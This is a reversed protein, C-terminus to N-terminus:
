TQLLRLLNQWFISRWLIGANFARKLDIASIASGFLFLNKGVLVSDLDESINLITKGPIPCSEKVCVSANPNGNVEYLIATYGNPQEILQFDSVQGSVAQFVWLDGQNMSGNAKIYGGEVLLTSIALVIILLAPVALVAFVVWGTKSKNPDKEIVVTGAIKDHLGQKKGTWAVMLYGILLVLSSLIKGIIERMFVRGFGIKEGNSGQILLGVAMKVLTAQYKTVMFLIYGWVAIMAFISVYITGGLVRSMIGLPLGVLLADVFWAAVRVWFGAYKVTQVIPVSINQPRPVQPVSPINTGAASDVVAIAANIDEVKWGATLLQQILTTKDVGSAFQTRIHAILQENPM